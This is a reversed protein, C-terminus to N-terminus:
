WRLICTPMEWFSQNLSSKKLFLKEPMLIQSEKEIKKQM